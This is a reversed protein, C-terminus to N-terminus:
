IEKKNRKITRTQRLIKWRVQQTEEKNDKQGNVDELLAQTEVTEEVTDVNTVEQEKTEAVKKSKSKSGNAAITGSYLDCGYLVFSEILVWLPYFSFVDLPTTEDM